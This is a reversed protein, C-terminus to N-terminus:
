GKSSAFLDGLAEALDQFRFEYGAAILRDPRVRQSNLFLSSMEGLALRLLGPPVRFRCPRHLARALGLCLDEMTAQGPSVLNVPGALSEDAMIHEVAGVVDAMHIWPFWQRGDGLVCGLGLRFPLAMRALAGGRGLVTGLRILAVRVGLDAARLAEEEWASAVRALFDRGPPSGESLVADAADGYYGVASANILLGPRRRAQAVARVVSRTTEVRSNYIRDRRARTWPGAAISEGALNVVVDAGELPPPFDPRWRRVSVGEPARVGAPNRSLVVVEHGGLVLHRSLASGVFGSGGLLVVKM